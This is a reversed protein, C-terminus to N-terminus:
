QGGGHKALWKSDQHIQIDIEFVKYGFGNRTLVHELAREKDSLKLPEKYQDSEPNQFYDHRDLWDYHQEIKRSVKALKADLGSDILCKELLGVRYASKAIEQKCREAFEKKRKKEKYDDLTTQIGVFAFYLTTLCLGMALLAVLDNLSKGAAWWFGRHNYSVVIAIAFYLVIIIGIGACVKVVRKKGADPVEL